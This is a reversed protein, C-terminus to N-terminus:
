ATEVAIVNHHLQGFSWCKQWVVNGKFLIIQCSFVCQRNRSAGVLIGTSEHGVVTKVELM